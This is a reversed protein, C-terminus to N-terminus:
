EKNGASKQIIVLGNKAGPATGSLLLLHREPDAQIVRLNRQTVQEHGMHGPLRSGKLVRGPYTGSGASGPARERDSQGHTKPGRSFHHRKIGGAFGKGKSIGTVDVRDGPKFMSVDIKQGVELSSPDDIRFERLHRAQSGSAKLHGKQPSNLKKAEGFGLQVANYGDTTETKIQTVLCPGAEIATIAEMTGGEEFIQTMGLKKGMLGSLM